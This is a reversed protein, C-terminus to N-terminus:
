RDWWGGDEIEVFDFVEVHGCYDCRLARVDAGAYRTIGLRSFQGVTSSIHRRYVGLGCFRCPIGMSPRLPAFNGTVLRVALQLGQHLIDMHKRQNPDRVIMVDLLWHQVHEFRKDGLVDTLSHARHDERSFIKGGSLMWYLVKGLSYVDTRVTPPGLRHQGSEMEPAIYNLSGVAEDSLTLREEGEMHCIGFDGLVPTGDARFLINSPKVDRHIVGARHAANLADVIPLLVKVTAEIDGEFEAPGVEELSGGECYEAVYYPASGALDYDYISLINPHELQRIAEIERKFLDLRKVNKLRKLVYQGARKGTSDKVLFLHAQGGESLSRVVEWEGYKKAAM